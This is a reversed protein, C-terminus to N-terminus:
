LMSKLPAPDRELDAGAGRPLHRRQAARLEAAPIAALRAVSSPFLLAVRGLVPAARHPLAPQAAGAGGAAAAARGGGAPEDGRPDARAGAAACRYPRRAM